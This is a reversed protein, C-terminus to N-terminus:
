LIPRLLSIFATTQNTLAAGDLRAGELFVVVERHLEWSCQQPSSSFINLFCVTMILTIEPKEEVKRKVAFIQNNNCVM